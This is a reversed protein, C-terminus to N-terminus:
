LTASTEIRQLAAQRYIAWGLIGYWGLPRFRNLSDVVPGIVVGPEVAVAEALAQQGLMLTRHNTASSAGDTASKTRPTEIFVAGEYMGIMGAWIPGGAHQEHPQRWTASAGAESRLDYSVNPHILCVYSSGNVPAVNRGRLKTVSARIDRSLILDNSTIDAATGTNFNMSGSSERTVNTGASLVDRVVEDLSNVMNYAVLNGIAPDIDTFAFERLKRTTLTTNGYEALTVTVTTTSPVQVATPDTTETLTSTATTLDAYLDFVVSSGPKDQDVVQKDAFTRMIPMSRLAFLVYKDYATQVLNAGLSTGSLIDTYAM